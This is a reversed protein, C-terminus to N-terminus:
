NSTKIYVLKQIMGITLGLYSDPSLKFIDAATTYCYSWQLRKAFATSAFTLNIYTVGDHSLNVCNTDLYNLFV